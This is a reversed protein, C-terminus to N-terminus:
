QNKKQTNSYEFTLFIFHPVILYVIGSSKEKKNQLKPMNRNMLLPFIYKLGGSDVFRECNEKNGSIAFNIVKIACIAALKREKLCKVMLELGESVRFRNQNEPVLLATCICLFLDQIFEGEEVSSPDTKRCQYIVKLLADMGDFDPISCLRRQNLTDTQLLISLIEACYFKNADFSPVTLRNLLYKMLHTKECVSVAIEPKIEVLNEIISLTNYVGQADEENSEDLRSINQVLLELGQEKIIAKILVEASPETELVEPDTMEQLLGVAALSIDTNEHAVMGLVSAVCNLEVMLPYLEPSAALSYLGVIEQHLEAESEMFKEPEAAYKMRM